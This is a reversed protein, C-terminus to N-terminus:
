RQQLLPHPRDSARPRHPAKFAFFLARVVAVPEGLWALVPRACWDRFSAPAWAIWAYCVREVSLLAGALALLGLSV